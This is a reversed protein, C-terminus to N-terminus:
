QKVIKSVGLSKGDVDFVKVFYIGTALSNVTVTKTETQFVQQGMNNYVLVKGIEADSSLAFSDNVPNPYISFLTKEFNQVGLMNKFGSVVCAFRRFGFAEDAPNSQGITVGTPESNYNSSPNSWRNIRTCTFGANSCEDNYAMITRWRQSATSSTGNTIATKNTYGHHHSCPSNSTNVYWDHNLGMNHGFEHALSFNSVVCSYLTVTFAASNIYNTSVTNLYGLGCSSTPSGIVLGVLDAAYTDRLAHINDMYGDSTGSLRSLDTSFSGSETYVIEGVYVLNILVNSVGSNTLATNMNTISTTINSNSTAVSGWLSRASPTYVVMVDITATGPCIPTSAACVDSNLLTNRESSITKPIEFDVAADKDILVNDNVQSIAFVDIGTQQFAFKQNSSSQYMGTIVRDYESFVLQANEDNAVSYVASFSGSTYYYSKVYTANVITNNPLKIVLNREINFKNQKFYATSSYTSALDKSIKNVEFVEDNLLNEKFLTEQSFM